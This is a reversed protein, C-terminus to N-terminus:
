TSSSSRSFSTIDVIWGQRIIELGLLTLTKYAFVNTKGVSGAARQGQERIAQLVSRMFKVGVGSGRLAEPISVASVWTTDTDAQSVLASGVMQDGRYGGLLRGRQLYAQFSAESQGGLAVPMDLFLSRARELDLSPAERIVISHDIRYPIHRGVDLFLVACPTAPLGHRWILDFSHSDSSDFWLMGCSIDNLRELLEDYRASPVLKPVFLEVVFGPLLSSDGGILAYGDQGIIYARGSRLSDEVFDFRPFPKSRTLQGPTVQLLSIPKMYVFLGRLVSASHIDVRIDHQRFCDWLM